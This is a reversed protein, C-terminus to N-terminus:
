FMKVIMVLMVTAATLFSVVVSLQLGYRYGINVIAKKNSLKAIQFALVKYRKAAKNFGGRDKIVFKPDVMTKLMKMLDGSAVDKSIKKDLNKRINKNHFTEVVQDTCQQLKQCLEPLSKINAREQTLALMALTQIHINSALDPFKSLSKIKVYNPLEIRNALFAAMHSDLLRGEELEVDSIVDLFEPTSLVNKDIIKPSQCPLCPNLEYLCREMGFGFSKKRIMDNCKQIAFLIEQYKKQKINPAIESWTNILNNTLIEVVSELAHKNVNAFAHAVVMSLGDLNISFDKLRLPGEPDLLLITQVLVLDRADFSLNDKVKELIGMSVLNEIREALDADQISREIWKKLLDKMVFEKGEDWYVYLDHALIRRNLYERGNFVIPRTAEVRSAQPLLNFRRGKAWEIIQENNWIEKRKDNMSGRLLDLMHPSIKLNSTLLHYTGKVLKLHTLEEDSLNETVNQGTLLITTLVGLAHVDVHSDGNGKGIPQTCARELTEYIVTQSYGCPESVCEGVSVERTDPTVFINTLNITGHTIGLHTLSDLVHNISPVFRTAIEEETIAGSEELYQNLRIGKPKEIISVFSRGDDTTLPVIGIALVNQFGEIRNKQLLNAEALRMPINRKHILAYINKQLADKKDTVAFASAFHSDFEPLPQKLHIQYRNELIDPKQSVKVHFNRNKNLFYNHKGQDLVPEEAEEAENEITEREILDDEKTNPKEAVAADVM